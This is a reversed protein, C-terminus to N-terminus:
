KLFVGSTKALKQRLLKIVEDDEVQNFQEYHAGVAGVFEEPSLLTIVEDAGENLVSREFGVPTVPVAVVIKKPNQKKVGHVALRMTLGTAIGDDVIIVVKGAIEEPKRKDRYLAMRRRTEKQQRLIEKKLWNKDVSETEIDNGLLLDKEDVACIAYEPNHPHGVKRTVVIDLPLNLAKAIEYGVVVGGRPLALVVAEIDKYKLLEKALLKGAEIRDKFM